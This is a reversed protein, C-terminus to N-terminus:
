AVGITGRVTIRSHRKCGDLGDIPKIHVALEREIYNASNDALAYCAFVDEIALREILLNEDTIGM